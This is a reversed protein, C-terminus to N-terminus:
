AVHPRALAKRWPPRGPASMAEPSANAPVIPSWFHIVSPRTSRGLPTLVEYLYPPHTPQIAVM